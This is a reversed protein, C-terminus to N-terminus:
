EERLEKFYREGAYADTRMAEKLESLDSFAKEEREFHLLDIRVTEGYLDDQFGYLFTEANVAGEKEVTPRRGINTISNIKETGVVTRSYYVGFPPLLKNKEPYINITPMELVSKGLRKGRTVKGTLSYPRSLLISVMEMDGEKLMDRVLSSSVTEGEYKVKPVEIVEFRGKSVSRLFDITGEGGRGFSMDPGAAVLKTNLTKILVEEVFDAASIGVTDKRLPYELLYDIGKDRLYEEREPNTTLVETDKGSFYASFPKDFTFLLTKLDKKSSNEILTEILKKHGSHIGDFKGITVAASPSKKGENKFFDRYEGTDKFVRM